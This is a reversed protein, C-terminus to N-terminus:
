AVAREKPQMIAVVEEDAQALEQAEAMKKAAEEIEEHRALTNAIREIFLMANQVQQKDGEPLVIAVGKYGPKEIEKSIRDNLTKVVGHLYDAVDGIGGPTYVAPAPGAYWPARNGAADFADYWKNHKAGDVDFGRYGKADKAVLSVKGAGNNAGLNVTCNGFYRFFGILYAQNLTRLKNAAQVLTLARSVDGNGDGNAHEIIAVAVDQVRENLNSGVNVIGKIAKDIAALGVINGPKRM